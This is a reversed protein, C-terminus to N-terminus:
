SSSYMLYHTYFVSYLEQCLIFEWPIQTTRMVFSHIPAHDSPGWSLFLSPPKWSYQDKLRRSAIDLCFYLDRHFDSFKLIVTPPHSTPSLHNDRLWGTEKIWRDGTDDRAIAVAAERSFNHFLHDTNYHRSSYTFGLCTALEGHM